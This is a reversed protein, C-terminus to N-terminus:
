ELRGEYREAIPEVKRRLHFVAFFLSTFSSQSPMTEMRLDGSLLSM